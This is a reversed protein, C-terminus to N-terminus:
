AKLRRIRLRYATYVMLSPVLPIILISLAVWATHRVTANDWVVASLCFLLAAALTMALLSFALLKSTRFIQTYKDLLTATDTYIPATGPEAAFIHFEGGSCVHQWQGAAFIELYDEREGAELRRMDLCYILKHAPARRLRYGFLAFRELFWGQESLQSLKNMELQEGFALGVSPKYRTTKNSKM